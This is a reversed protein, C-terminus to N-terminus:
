VARTTSHRRRTTAASAEAREDERADRREGRARARAVDVGLSGLRSARARAVRSARDIGVRSQL